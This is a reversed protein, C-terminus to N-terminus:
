IVTKLLSSDSTLITFVTLLLRRFYSSFVSLCHQALAWYERCSHTSAIPFGFIISDFSKSCVIHLIKLPIPKSMPCPLISTQWRSVFWTTSNNLKGLSFIALIQHTNFVSQFIESWCVQTKWLTGFDKYIIAWTWM